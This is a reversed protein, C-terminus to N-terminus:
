KGFALPSAKDRGKDQFNPSYSNSNEEKRGSAGNKEGDSKQEREQKDKRKQEQRKLSSRQLMVLM